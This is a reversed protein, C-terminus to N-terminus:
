PQHKGLNKLRIEIVKPNPYTEKISEFLERAKGFNLEQEYVDGLLFVSQAYIKEEAQKEAVIVELVEKAQGWSQMFSYTQAEEYLCLARLEPDIANDACIKLMDVALGYERLGRQLLAMALRTPVTKSLEGGSFELSRERAELSKVAEGNLEYLEGLRNMLKWATEQETGYELIMAELLGIARDLDGSVNLSIELLRNWAELRFDGQPYLQLYREYGARAELYFGKTYAERVNILDNGSPDSQGCGTLSIVLLALVILRTIYTQIRLM